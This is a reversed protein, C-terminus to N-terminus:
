DTLIGDIWPRTETYLEESESAMLFQMFAREHQDDFFLAQGLYFRIRQEQESSMSIQLITQLLEAARDYDQDSFEGSIVRSVTQAVGTGDGSRELPLIRPEPAFEEPESTRSLVEEIALETTSPLPQASGPRPIDPTSLPAGSQIGSTIRLIPLPARRKTAPPVSIQVM